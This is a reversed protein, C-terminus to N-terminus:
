DKPDSHRHHLLFSTEPHPAVHFDTIIVVKSIKVSFEPMFCFTLHRFTLDPGEYVNGLSRQPFYKLATTFNWPYPSGTYLLLCM